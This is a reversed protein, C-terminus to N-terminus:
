LILILIQIIKQNLFLYLLLKRLNIKLERFINRGNELMGKNYLLIPITSQRVVYSRNSNKAMIQANISLISEYKLRNGFSGFIYEKVIFFM